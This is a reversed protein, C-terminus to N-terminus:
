EMLIEKKSSFEVTDYDSPSIYQQAFLSAM